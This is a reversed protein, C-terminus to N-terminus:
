HHEMIDQEMTLVVRIKGKTPHYVRHHPIYWVKGDGRDLKEKPVKEAYGEALLYNIFTNYETHFTSDKQFRRKM